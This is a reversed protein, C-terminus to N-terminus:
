LARLPTRSDNPMPMHMGTHKTGAHTDTSLARRELGQRKQQPTHTHADRLPALLHLLLQV